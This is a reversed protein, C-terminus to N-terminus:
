PGRERPSGFNVLHIACGLNLAHNDTGAGIQGSM